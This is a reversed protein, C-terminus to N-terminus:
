EFLAIHEEQLKYDTVIVADLPSLTWVVTTKAPPGATYTISVGNTGSGGGLVDQATRSNIAAGTDKDYVTLKMTLLASPQIPLDNEDIIEFSLFRTAKEGIVFDVPM